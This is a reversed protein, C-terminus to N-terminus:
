EVWGIGFKLRKDAPEDIKQIISFRVKLLWKGGKKEEGNKRGTWELLRKDLLSVCYNFKNISKSWSKRCTGSLFSM